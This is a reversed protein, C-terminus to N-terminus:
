QRIFVFVMEGRDSVSAPQLVFGDKGFLDRWEEFTHYRFTVGNNGIWDGHRNCKHDIYTRFIIMKKAVRSMEKALKDMMETPVLTLVDFAAVVDFSRDSFKGLDWGNYVSVLDRISPECHEVAYSSIEVGRADKGHEFFYRVENGLACGIFLINEFDGARWIVDFKLELQKQQERNGWEIQPGFGGRAGKGYYESNFNAQDYPVFEDKMYLNDKPQLRLFAVM